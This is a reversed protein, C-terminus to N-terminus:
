NLPCGLENAWELTDKDGSAVAALVEAKTLPYAVDSHLSNLLAAAGHRWLAVNSGGGESLAELL